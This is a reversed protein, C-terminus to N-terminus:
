EVVVTVGAADWATVYDEFGDGSAKKPAEVAQVPIDMVLRVQDFKQLGNTASLYWIVPVPHDTTVLEYTNFLASGTAKGPKVVDTYYFYGDKALVWGEGPLDTFTGGYNDIFTVVDTTGSSPNAVKSMGWSTVYEVPDLPASDDANSKYGLAIGDNNDAKGWWNAVIHARIYAEVNGTNTIVVNDKVFGHVEDEIEVDVENAKLTYTRLEGAKWTVNSTLTGFDLVRTYEKPDANGVVIEFTVKLKTADTLRQPPFWFTMTADADNLNNLNGGQGFSEAYQGKNAFSGSTYSVTSQPFEQSYVTELKNVGNESLDWSVADPSSYIDGIDSYGDGETTSKVTCKGYGYLGTFEVSKIYTKVDDNNNQGSAFKVGSLAHYFLIPIGKNADAKNITRMAYLIDQQDEASLPTRYSFTMKQVSGDYSYQYSNAMVGVPNAQSGNPNDKAVRAYFLLQENSGWPDSDFKRVWHDSLADFGGDSIFAASPRADTMNGVTFALGMFRAGSMEKLNETYTPTGRTEPAESVVLEPYIGDMSTVTEEFSINQGLIPDGLSLTQGAVVPIAEEASRTAIGSKITFALTNEGIAPTGDTKEEQVEQVCAVLALAAAAFLAFRTKKM